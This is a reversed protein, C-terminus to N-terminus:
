QLKFTFLHMYKKNEQSKQVTVSLLLSILIIMDFNYEFLLLFSEYFAFQAIM